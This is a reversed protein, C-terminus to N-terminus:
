ERGAIGKLAEATADVLTAAAMAPDRLIAARQANKLMWIEEIVLKDFAISLMGLGFRRLFSEKIASAAAAALDNTHKPLEHPRLGSQFLEGVATGLAAIIEADLQPKLKEREFREAVNGIARYLAAPDEVRYSYVGALSVSLDFDADMNDDRVRILVPAPTEFANGHCEKTNIYYVRHRHPQIDGGGFGVRDLVDRFYGVPGAPRDPDVFIHEGPETVVDVVKQHSVVVLAQGDAVSLLSGNSIVEDDKRDNTSRDSVHKHGHAMLIDVPLADMFFAEKWQEKAVSRFSSTIARIIGM